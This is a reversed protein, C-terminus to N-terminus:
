FPMQYGLGVIGRFSGTWDNFKADTILANSGPPTGPQGPPDFAFSAPYTLRWFNWKAELRLFLKRTVFVRTGFGPALILKTGFSYASTDAPVSSSVAFGITGTVYPALNHWTKRGTLNFQLIGEVFTVGVPYIGHFRKTLSDRPEWVARELSGHGLSFGAQLPNSIRFDARLGYTMGNHPGLEFTSGSGGFYGADFEITRGVTIDRYPSETPPHGVQAAAGAASVLLCAMAAGITRCRPTLM